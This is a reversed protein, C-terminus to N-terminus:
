SFIADQGVGTWSLSAIADNRCRNPCHCSPDIVFTKGCFGLGELGFTVRLPASSFDFGRHITNCRYRFGGFESKEHTTYRASALFFDLVGALFDGQKV